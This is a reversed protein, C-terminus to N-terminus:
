KVPLRSAGRPLPEAASRGVVEAAATRKTAMEGADAAAPHRAEVPVVLVRDAPAPPKGADELRHLRRRRWM